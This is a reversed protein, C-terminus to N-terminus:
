LSRSAVLFMPIPAFKLIRTTIKILLDSRIPSMEYWYTIFIKDLLYQVFFCISVSVFLLPIEFGYTFAVFITTLMVSYKKEIKYVGPKLNKRGCAKLLLGFV